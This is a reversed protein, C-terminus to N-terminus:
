FYIKSNQMLVLLVFVNKGKVLTHKDTPSSRALVRLKPWLKDIREQEIQWILVTNPSQVFCCFSFSSLFAM